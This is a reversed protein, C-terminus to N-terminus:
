YFPLRPKRKGELIFKYELQFHKIKYHNYPFLLFSTYMININVGIQKIICIKVSLKSHIKIGIQKKLFTFYYLTNAITELTFFELRNKLTVFLLVSQM